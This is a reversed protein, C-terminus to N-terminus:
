ALRKIVMIEVSTVKNVNWPLGRLHSELKKRAEVVYYPLFYHVHISEMSEEKNVFIGSVHLHM